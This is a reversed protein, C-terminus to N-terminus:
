CSIMIFFVLHTHTYIHVPLFSSFDKSVLGGQKQRRYKQAEAQITRGRSLRMACQPLEKLDEPTVEKTISAPGTSERGSTCDRGWCNMGVKNEKVSKESM